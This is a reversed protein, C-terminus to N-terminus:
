TAEPPTADPALGQYYHIQASLKVVLRILAERDLKRIFPELDELTLRMSLGNHELDIMATQREYPSRLPEV